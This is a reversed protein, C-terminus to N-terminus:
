PIPICLLLALLVSNSANEMLELLLVASVIASLAEATVEELTPLIDGSRRSFTSDFM